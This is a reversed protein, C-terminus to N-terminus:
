HHFILIILTLFFSMFLYEDAECACLTGCGFSGKIFEFNSAYYCNYNLMVSVAVEAM